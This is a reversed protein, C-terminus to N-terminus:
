ESLFLTQQPNDKLYKDVKNKFSAISDSNVVKSPLKNWINVIRNFFFHKAEHSQFRKPIIKFGNNRTLNSPDITFYKNPDLNSFGKFIKFVEILDGRIRHKPLSFLNLEKLREEYSKNRLRPIMKTVRRQIKELKEIDKKYYPSWFQVCYELHPRVLSNYLALIVKESKFEFTREIFGVLKNATKVTETCHQSPKLDKSVVVGLDKEKATSSLQVNNMVYRAQVNDNGIHLVKCKEINFKMQWTEAWSTLKDLDCQLKQWQSVSTVKSTIKTDDAFKSIKCSIREDIDNIYIIFLVPGLVSGQPVGSNVNHWTSEKGNIVVRQQRDSLWDTLWNLTNGAIGHAKVKSILRKHPVTDFAKQFDLYIIDVAKTEDYSNFVEYFFDLLNTLCSRKNRFGHQSDNLLKNEELYKVIKDRILTEMLKCVVSTLSIPRYNAPLSKNGRKFIPTVNAQKWEHPVKGVVLTKNFLITLPELLENRAEKLLRPSIKDPGPTKNVNMSNMVSLLENETITFGPLTTDRSQPAPTPLGSQVDETTFVSSFYDNLTNAMDIDNEIQKGDKTILPGITSTLVRKNKVYSYFAKPNTKCSM